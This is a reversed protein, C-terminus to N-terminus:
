ILFAKEQDIHNAAFDGRVERGMAFSGIAVAISKGLAEAVDIARACARESKNARQLRSQVNEVNPAVRHGEPSCNWREGDPLQKERSPHRLLLLWSGLVRM